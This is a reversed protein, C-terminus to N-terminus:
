LKPTLTISKIYIDYPNTNNFEFSIPINGTISGIGSSPLTIVLNYFNSLNSGTAFTGLQTSGSRAIFNKNGYDGSAGKINIVIQSYDGLNTSGLNFPLIFSPTSYGTTKTIQLVGGEASNWSASLDASGGFTVYSIDLVAVSAFNYSLKLGSGQDAEVTIEIGAGPGASFNFTLTTKGVALEALFSKLLTVESGSVTYHTGQTLAAAGNQIGTLTNGNLTMTVEIDNNLDKYFKATTPSITSNQAYHPGSLYVKFNGSLHLLGFMYLCGDYYRYQGPTMSINWFDEIFDWARVHTAALSAAANCAVLGPSHDGHPNRPTGNIEWLAKYSNVGQGHFFNQLRDAYQKQRDDKAWWAYDMAINMITRFADYAFYPQSGTPTGDFNSYDPSLGTEPHLAAGFFNRSTQIVTKYFDIDERMKATNTWIGHTKGENADKEMEYVWVEYFSPLHYSPDTHNASAGIPSFVPMYNGIPMPNAASNNSRHDGPRRFLGPSDWPDLSPNEWSRHVMDYLLQMAHQRYNLVGTGSGWRAHAFLLATAFYFEGDPAIGNGKVTGNTNMQWTFYGRSNNGKNIDCYMYYKAWRWIRDFKEKDDMQVAMMMGYSMGESRIDKNHVDLIYAGPGEPTNVEYYIRYDESTDNFLRNWATQVKADIQTQTWMGRELFMNRYNGSAAAGTSPPQLAPPLPPPTFNSKLIFDIDDILYSGATNGVNLGIAIYANGKLNGVIAAGSAAINDLSFDTWENMYPPEGFNLTQSQGILRNAYQNYQSDAPNGFGYDLFDTTSGGAYVHISKGNLATTGSIPKIRLSITQYNSLEYPLNIPIIAAQNYNGTTLQLAKNDAPATDSVVSLAASGNGKTSIYKTTSGINDNQFDIKTFLVIEPAAINLDTHIFVAYIFIVGNDADEKKVTYTKEGSGTETVSTLDVGSFDLQNNIKTDALTYGIKISAGEKGKAPTVTVSDNGENGSINLEINYIVTQKGGKPKNKDPLLSNVFPNECSILALLFFM